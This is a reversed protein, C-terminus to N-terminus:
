RPCHDNDDRAMLQHIRRGAKAAEACAARDGPTHARNAADALRDGLLAGLAALVDTITEIDADAALPNAFLPSVRASPLSPAITIAERGDVAADAATMFSAFFAPVVDESSRALARVAEFADFSTALLAPVSSEERLRAQVAAIKQVGDVQRMQSGVSREGSHEAAPLNEQPTM